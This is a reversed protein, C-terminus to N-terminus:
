MDYRHMKSPKPLKAEWYEIYRVLEQYVLKVFRKYVAYLGPTNPKNFIKTYYALADSKYMPSGYEMKGSALMKIDTKLNRVSDLVDKSDNGSLKDPFYYGKLIELVANHAHAPIEQLSSYYLEYDRETATGDNIARIAKVFEDRNKALKSRYETGKGKAGHKPQNLHQSVHVLEHIKTDIMSNMPGFVDFKSYTVQKIIEWFKDIDVIAYHEDVWDIADGKLMLGMLMDASNDAAVDPDINLNITNYGASGQVTKMKKFLVYVNRGITNSIIDGVGSQIDQHVYYVLMDVFTRVVKSSTGNKLERGDLSDDIIYQPIKRAALDYLGLQIDHKSKSLSIYESLFEHARM